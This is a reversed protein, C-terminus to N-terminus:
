RRQLVRSLSTGNSSSLGYRQIQKPAVCNAVVGLLPARGEDRLLQALREASPERTHAVRAVVLVGDVLSLLPMVDSVELPSPGDILVSDFQEALSSLLPAVSEGALLAPPNPAGYTSALLSISGATHAPALTAVGGGAPAASASAADAPAVGIEQMAQQADLAGTLVEALGDTPAAGLLKALVPRRMNADIVAVREGAERRVLALDAVLTSKGDGVDASTVLMVRPVRQAAAPAGNSRASSEPVSAPRLKLGAHLRRLPELLNKSPAPAGERLVIPRRVEPLATMIPAGFVSEISALTRMRRDFRGLVYAFISALLLGIVFGFIANQRPKPKLLVAAKPLAATVQQAGPVALSAELSNIKSSLNAEQLVNSTSNASSKSGSSGPKPTAAALSSLEIRHLQRQAIEIATRIGRRRSAHQRKLYAIAVANALRASAKGTHAEATITIFESKEATKAKVKGRAAAKAVTEQSKRLERRVSPVIIQNIVAVQNPGGATVNRAAGKEPSAGGEEQGSGLYIQTASQFLKTQHKYYLYSGAAVVIAVGLISWKRRWLPAVIATADTENM